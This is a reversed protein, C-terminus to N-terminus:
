AFCRSIGRGGCRRFRMPQLGERRTLVVANLEWRLKQLRSRWHDLEGGERCDSASQCFTSFRAPAHAAALAGMKICGGMLCTCGVSSRTWSAASTAHLGLAGGCRGCPWCLDRCRLSDFRLPRHRWPVVPQSLVGSPFHDFWLQASSCSCFKCKMQCWARVIPRTGDPPTLEVM